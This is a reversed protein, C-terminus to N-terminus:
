LHTYIYLYLYLSVKLVYYEPMLSRLVALYDNMQKRRNREVAIHAMRQNEIEELNKKTTRRSRRNRRSRGCSTSSVIGGGGPDEESVQNQVPFQDEQDNTCSLLELESGYYNEWNGQFLNYGGAYLEHNQQAFTQLEM